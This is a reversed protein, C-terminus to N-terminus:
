VKHHVCLLLFMTAKCYIWVVEFAYACSTNTIHMHNVLPIIKKKKVFRAILKKFTIYM